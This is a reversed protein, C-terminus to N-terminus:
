KSTTLENFEQLGPLTVEEQLTPIESIYEVVNTSAPLGDVSKEQMDSPTKEKTPSEQAGTLEDQPKETVSATPKSEQTTEDTSDNALDPEQTTVVPVNVTEQALPEATPSEEPQQIAASDIM